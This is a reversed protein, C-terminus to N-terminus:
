TVRQRRPMATHHTRTTCPELWPSCGTCEHRPDPVSFCWSAMLFHLRVQACPTSCSSSSWSSSNSISMLSASGSNRLPWDLRLPTSTNMALGQVAGWCVRCDNYQLGVDQDMNTIGKMWIVKTRRLQGSRQSHGRCRLVGGYARSRIGSVRSGPCTDGILITFFGSPLMCRAAMVALASALSRRSSFSCCCRVSSSAMGLSRELHAEWKRRWKALVPKTHMEPLNCSVLSSARVEVPLRYQMMLVKPAARVLVSLAEEIKMIQQPDMLTTSVGLQRTQALEDLCLTWGIREGRATAARLTDLLVTPLLALSNM